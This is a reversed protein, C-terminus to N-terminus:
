NPTLGTHVIQATTCAKLLAFICNGVHMYDTVRKGRKHEM